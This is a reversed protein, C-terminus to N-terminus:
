REKFTSFTRIRDPADPTKTHIVTEKSGDTDLIVVTYEIESLSPIRPEFKPIKTDAEFKQMYTPM